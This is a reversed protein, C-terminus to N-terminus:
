HDGPETHEQPDTAQEDTASRALNLGRQLADRAGDFNGQAIQAAAIKMYDLALSSERLWGAKALSGAERSKALADEAAPQAADFDDNALYTAVINIYTTAADFVDPCTNAANMMEALRLDRRADELKEGIEARRESKWAEVRDSVADALGALKRAHEELAALNKTDIVGQTQADLESLDRLEQGAAKQAAPDSFFAKHRADEATIQGALERWLSEKEGVEARISDALADARRIQEFSTEVDGELTLDDVQALCDRAEELVSTFDDIFDLGACADVAEKTAALMLRLNGLTEGREREIRERMFEVQWVKTRAVALERALQIETEASLAEPGGSLNEKIRNLDLYADELMDPSYNGACRRVADQVADEIM